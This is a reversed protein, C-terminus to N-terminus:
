MRDLWARRGEGQPSARAFALMADAHRDRIAAADDSEALRESAYEHITELMTFRTDGHGDDAIRVLSQEALQELSDLAPPITEGPLTCVEEVLEVPGGRAFSSLRAFLRRQDADLLEHSWEIAGRLTRQREPLDRGGGSLLSLRDDLRRAMAAPALVRIRAAALEIALPLGDLRRVIEAVDAANEPTLAFDPRVATAREVFLRVAEAGEIESLSRVGPAPLGLPPVAFEQEGAVRLPARSSVLITLGPAARLLDTVIQAGDLLQEFNDLVLLVTRHALHDRVVDM